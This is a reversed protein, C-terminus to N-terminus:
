KIEKEIDEIEKRVFKEADDLDKRLQKIIKEEEETLQRKTRTKELLKVQDRIDEKLADFAKHLASEAERVEKKIKGLKKRFSGFKHWGYWIIFLLAFILVVLPVVVALLSVAWSGLKLFAPRQVAITVTDSPDSRAGRDDAVEAWLKYIGDRPREEAVFVFGGKSDAKAGYSVADKGEQQLYVIIQSDPYQSTGKIVLLEGSQLERPWDTIVPAELAEITFEASSALSNGAKDVAKAILTHKGPGLVPTEYRHSGDDQWVQPSGNDIQIKYHDIGSTDDKADFIFKAKPETLDTRRAETIEFRSPKETDIQFRFRSVAGWGADNRLRVSFYWIGDEFNDLEKSSIAPIYNATPVANSIRGVLLRAGTVGSPLDWAFKADNLAYWKNPDPHTPSSIAPAQPTGLAPPPTVAPEEKSVLNFQAQDRTQLIDTGYGDNARVAGSSFVLSATGANRIRFTINLLQGASGNYGPTPLGGDFSIVGASNSFAPEEVWLSFVSGSKSVSVVELLGAPFNIVASSDNIAQGQTNVLVSTNLINGVTFNGSSPSFYLTAANAKSVNFVFFLAFFAVPLCFYKLALGWVKIPTAKDMERKALIVDNMWPKVATAKQLPTPALKM